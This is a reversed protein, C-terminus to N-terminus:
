ESGALVRAARGLAAIGEAIEGEDLAAYGLLLTRAYRAGLAKGMVLANGTKVSYVGVGHSRARSELEFADPLHKPLEWILHM